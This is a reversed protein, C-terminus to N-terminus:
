VLRGRTVSQASFFCRSFYFVVSKAVFHKKDNCSKVQVQSNERLSPYQISQGEDQVVQTGQDNVSPFVIRQTGQELLLPYQIRQASGDSLRTDRPRELRSLPRNGACCLGLLTWVVLTRLLVGKRWCRSVCTDSM